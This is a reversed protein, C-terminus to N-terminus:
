PTVRFKVGTTSDGPRMWNRMAVSTVSMSVECVKVTAPVEPMGPNRVRLFSVVTSNGDPPEIAEAPRIEVWVCCAIM